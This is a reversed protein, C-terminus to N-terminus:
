ENVAQLQKRIHNLSDETASEEQDELAKGLFTLLMETDLGLTLSGNSVMCTENQQEILYARRERLDDRGIVISYGTRGEESRYIKESILSNTSDEYDISEGELYGTFSIQAGFDNELTIRKLAKSENQAM